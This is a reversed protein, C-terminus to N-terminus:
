ANQLEVRCRHQRPVRELCTEAKANDSMIKSASMPQSENTSYHYLQLKSSRIPQIFLTSSVVLICTRLDFFVDKFALNQLAHAHRGERTTYTVVSAGNISYRYLLVSGFATNTSSGLKM